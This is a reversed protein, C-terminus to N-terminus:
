VNGGYKKFKIAIQKIIEDNSLADDTGTNEQTASINAFLEESEISPENASWNNEANESGVATSDIVAPDCHDLQLLEALIHESLKNITPFNFVSTASLTINLAQSIRTNIEIAMISDIGLENFGTNKAPLETGMHLVSSVEQQIFESLIIQRLKKSANKIKELLASQIATTTQEPVPSFNKFLGIMNTMSMLPLFVDWNINALVVNNSSKGMIKAFANIYAESSEPIIGSQSLNVAKTQSLTNKLMGTDKWPGWNITQAALGKHRRYSSFADLFANSAAYHGLEKTGFTASISSFSCFFDLEMETSAAHLTLTNNIKASVMDLFEPHSITTFEARKISGAAHIIGKIERNQHLKKIADKAKDEACLDIHLYHINAGLEELVAIREKTLQPMKEQSTRSSLILYRAGKKILYKALEFALGGFGGSILYASKADIDVPKETVQSLEHLVPIYTKHGRIAIQQQEKEAPLFNMLLHMKEGLLSLRPDMDITHTTMMPKELALSRACALLPAQLAQKISMCGGDVDVAGSTLVYLESVQTNRELDRLLTSLTYGACKELQGPESIDVDFNALYLLRYNNKNSGDAKFIQSLDNDAHEDYVYCEHSTIPNSKSSILLFEDGRQELSKLLELSTQSSEAYVLWNTVAQTSLEVVQEPSSQQWTVEYAQVDAHTQIESTKYSKLVDLLAVLANKDDAQFSSKRYIQTLIDEYGDKNLAMSLANDTEEEPWTEEIWFRKRPLPYNPLRIYGNANPFFKHWNILQQNICLEALAISVDKKNALTSEVFPTVDIEMSLSTQ